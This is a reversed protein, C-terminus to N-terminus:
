PRAERRRTDRVSRASGDSALIPRTVRTGMDESRGLAWELRIPLAREDDDGGADGARTMSASERSPRPRHGARRSRPRIGRRGLPLSRGAGSGRDSCRPSRARPTLRAAAAAASTMARALAAARTVVGHPAGGLGTVGGGRRRTGRREFVFFALPGFSSRREALRRVGHRPRSARASCAASTAAAAAACAAAAAAGALARAGARGRVLLGGGRPQRVFRRVGRGRRRRRWPPPPASCVRRAGRRQAEGLKLAGGHSGCGCGCGCECSAESPAGVRRRHHRSSVFAASPSPVSVRAARERRARRRRPNGVFKM